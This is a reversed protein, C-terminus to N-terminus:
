FSLKLGLDITRAGGRTSTILGFTSDGLTVGPDSFQPTNTASYWDTRFELNFRETLRVNRFVAADLNFFGPGSLIYRGVNGFTPRGALLSPDAFASTNFWPVTNIGYLKTFKGILDPSQSNNPTNLPVCTCGFNLPAGSLLTVVGSIRWGGLIQNLAGTKFFKRDRGFPLDYVVSQTFIHTRDFDTRAYNRRFDVYYGASPANEGNEGGFGLARGYTYATTLNLGVTFRRRASIQLSNYSSATQWYRLDVASTIGYNQFYPQGASGKGIFAPDTTSNLNYDLPIHVGRNGVYAVSLVVQSPLSREYTLNWSEVYPDVYNHPITIYSQSKLLPTNVPILGNSPVGAIIPPPFGQEYTAPTGNPLLAPGFSSLNNFANNQKVPFNYAYTNDAFPEYSIAFGARLVDKDSLRYALGLRPAFDKYRKPIGLNSPNGGIGAILLTNNDGNYNSFGGPFQPTAPPYFEWRLGLNLTLKPTVQWKDGGYVFLQWARYAPFYVALDRGVQNPVDLLMAAFNNAFSTKPGGNLATQGTAFQWRGRPGFTQEQLLDDRIRIFNGGFKLTHNGITKTMNAVIDFDTEARVWPVSASYGILPDTSNFGTSTFATMGSTFADVNVGPIGFKTSSNTGYDSGQAVNRYRNLGIRIESILTPSFIHDWNVGASYTADTSSGQFGGGIPGGLVVGFAPAQYTQPNTYSLRGSIHDKQGQYQDIKVDFTNIDQNFPASELFNNSYKQTTSLNQNANPAPLLALLRTAVPDLRTAPIVNHPFQTRGKGCNNANGGPLCDATNGTMPDYINTLVPDSFDGNKMAVTPVGLRQFSGEHDTTRLFDVFFFTKDKRIPGGFAGGFYNFVLRPKVFPTGNPGYDFFGRADLRDGRWLEFVDGHFENSGSKLIINVVAGVAAGQEPDYNSTTVDVQQIAGIPPIYVQLLGTRENDNVGEIQFNNGLSSQGNIQNNLSNQPNFFRSHNFQAPTAGPVLNILNQFNRSNGLPLQDGQKSSFTDGTKATDTQLLPPAANVTITETVRGPSISLNVRATSNVLLAIGDQQASSFGEKQVRVQYTGPPLNPFAYYGNADTTASRTTGTDVDTITVQAGPILGGSSDSITGM